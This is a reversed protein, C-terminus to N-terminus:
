AGSPGSFPSRRSPAADGLTRGDLKAHLAGLGWLASGGLVGVLLCAAASYILFLHTAEAGRYESEFLVNGPNRERVLVARAYADDGIVRCGFEGAGLLGLLAVVAGLTKLYAAM